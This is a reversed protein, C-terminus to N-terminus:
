NIGTFSSLARENIKLSVCTICLEFEFELKYFENRHMIRVISKEVWPKMFRSENFGYM